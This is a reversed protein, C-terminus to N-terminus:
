HYQQLQNIIQVSLETGLSEQMDFFSDTDLNLPELIDAQALRRVYNMLNSYYVRAIEGVDTIHRQVVELASSSAIEAQAAADGYMLAVAHPGQMWMKPQPQEFEVDGATIMHDEAAIVAPGGQMKCIAAIAVTV